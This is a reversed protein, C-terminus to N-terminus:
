RRGYATWLNLIQRPSVGANRLAEETALVVAEPTGFAALAKEATHIGWGPIADLIRYYLPYARLQSRLFGTHGQRNYRASLAQILRVTGPLSRSFVLRVGAEQYSVLDQMLADAGTFNRIDWLTYGEGLLVVHDYCALMGALQAALEGTTWSTVLNDLRKREVGVFGALSHFLADGGPLPALPFSCEGPIALDDGPATTIQGVVGVQFTGWLIRQEKIHWLRRRVM